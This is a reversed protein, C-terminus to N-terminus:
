KNVRSQKEYLVLSVMVRLVFVGVYAYLLMVISSPILLCLIILLFVSSANIYVFPSIRARSEMESKMYQLVVICPISWIVIHMYELIVLYEETIWATIIMDGFHQLFIRGAITLLVSGLLIVLVNKIGLGVTEKVRSAHIHLVVPQVSSEFAKTIMLTLVILSASKDDIYHDAFWVPIIHYVLRILNDSARSFAHKYIISLLNLSEKIPFLRYSRKYSSWIIFILVLIGYIYFYSFLGINLFICALVVLLLLIVKILISLLNAEVASKSRISSIYVHFISTSIIWVTLPIPTNSFITYLLGLFFSSIFVAWFTVPYIENKLSYDSRIKIISFGLSFSSVTVILGAYRLTKTFDLFEDSSGYRSFLSTMALM